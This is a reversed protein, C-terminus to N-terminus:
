EEPLPRGLVYDWVCDHGDLKTCSIPSYLSAESGALSPVQNRIEPMRFVLAELREQVFGFPLRMHYDLFSIQLHVPTHGDLPIVLGIEPEDHPPCVGCETLGIEDSAPLNAVGPDDGFSSLIYDRLPGLADDLIYRYGFTFFALLYASTMWGVKALGSRLEHHSHIILGFRDEPGLALFRDQERPNTREWKGTSSDVAFTLRGSIRDGRQMKSTARLTIPEENPARIVQVCREGFIRGEAEGDKIQERLQM